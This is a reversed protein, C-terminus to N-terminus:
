IELNNRRGVHAAADEAEHVSAQVVLDLVVQERADAVAVVGLDRRDHAGEALLAADGVDMEAADEFVDAGAGEM